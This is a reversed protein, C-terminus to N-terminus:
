HFIFPLKMEEEKKRKRLTLFLASHWLAPPLLSLDSGRKWPPLLSLYLCPFTEKCPNSLACLPFFSLLGISVQYHKDLWYIVRHSIQSFLLRRQGTLPDWQSEVKSLWSQCDTYLKMAIWRAVLINWQSGCMHFDHHILLPDVFVPTLKLPGSINTSYIMAILGIDSLFPVLHFFQSDFLSKNKPWKM